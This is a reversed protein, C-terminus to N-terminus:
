ICEDTAQMTVFDQGRFNEVASSTYRGTRRLLFWKPTPKDKPWLSVGRLLHRYDAWDFESVCHFDTTWQEDLDTGSEQYVIAFDAQWRDCNEIVENV